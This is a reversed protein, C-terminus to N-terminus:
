LPPAILRRLAERTLLKPAPGLEVGPPVGGPLFGPFPFVRCAKHPAFRTGKPAVSAGIVDANTLYYFPFMFRPLKRITVGDWGLSPDRLSVMVTCLFVLRHHPKYEDDKVRCVWKDRPGCGTAKVEAGLRIGHWGPAHGPVIRRWEDSGLALDWSPSGGQDVPRDFRENFLPASQWRGGAGLADLMGRAMLEAGAGLVQERRGAWHNAKERPGHWAQRAADARLAERWVGRPIPVLDMEEGAFRRRVLRYM